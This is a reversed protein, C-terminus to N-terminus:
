VRWLQAAYLIANDAHIQATEGLDLLAADGQALTSGNCTVGNRLAFMLCTGQSLVQSNSVHIIEVRAQWRHRATFLNLAFAPDGSLSCHTAVDCPFHHPLFPQDVQLPRGNEFALEVPGGSLLTFVRDVPGYLSFPGSQGIEAVAFRWGFDESLGDSAIDWSVGRGNRWLGKVFSSAPIHQM